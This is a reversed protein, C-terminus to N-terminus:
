RKGGGQVRRRFGDPPGLSTEAGSVGSAWMLKDMPVTALVPFRSIVDLEAPTSITQRGSEALFVAICALFLSTIIGLLSDILPRPKVPSLSFSPTQVIGINLLGRDDMAESIQAADRKQIYLQQNTQFETAKQQLATFQLADRETAKMQDNLATIQAAITLRRATVGRLRARDEDLTQDQAQWKPNVSTSTELSNMTQTKALETKAAEIQSDLQQVLRDTPLYESLLQARKLTLQALLTNIQDISGAAPLVRETMRQRAPTAALQAAETDIRHSIEGMESEAANELLDAQSLSRALDGEKEGVSFLNHQQQFDALQRQAEAWALQYRNAEENFFHAAGVPQSITKERALFVALLRNLTDTAERPDNATFSVDIVHSKRVPAISLRHRLKGLKAEHEMQEAKPHQTSPIRSWGPDVVEGLVDASGLIEVNSYLEEETVENVISQGASTAEASIVEPKRANQVLLSMDSQYRKHTGLVYLATLALGLLFVAAFRRRHRFLSEVIGNLIASPTEATSHSTSASM